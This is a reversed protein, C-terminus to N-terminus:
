VATISATAEIIYKLASSASSELVYNIKMDMTRKNAKLGFSSQVDDQEQRWAPFDLCGFYGAEGAQEYLKMAINQAQALTANILTIKCYDTLLQEVVTDSVQVPISNPKTDTIQVVAHVASQNSPTLFSPWFPVGCYDGFALWKTTSNSLFLQSATADNLLIYGANRNQLIEGNYHYTNAVANFGLQRNIGIVFGKYYVLFMSRAPTNGASANAVTVGAIVDIMTDIAGAAITQLYAVSRCPIDVYGAVPITADATTEVVISHTANGAQTGEPIETGQAGTFRCTVMTPAANPETGFLDFLSDKLDLFITGTQYIGDPRQVQDVDYHIATITVASGEDSPLIYALGNSGVLYAAQKATAPEIADNLEQIPGALLADMDNM